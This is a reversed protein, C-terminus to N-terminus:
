WTLAQVAKADTAAEIAARLTRARTFAAEVQAGLLLGVQVMQAPTLTAVTNDHRTFEITAPLSSAPTNNLLLVRKTINAQAADDADFVGFPTDLPAKIAADRAQKVEAWKASRLIEVGPPLWTKTPWDWTHLPSPQADKAILTDGGIYHTADLGRDATCWAEGGACQMDESGPPCSVSRRIEGTTMSYIVINM